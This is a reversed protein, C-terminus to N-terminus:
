PEPPYLLINLSPRTSTRSEGRAAALPLESVGACASIFNLSVAVVNVVLQFQLFKRISVFVNRGWLV